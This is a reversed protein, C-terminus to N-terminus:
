FECLPLDTPMISIGTDTDPTSPNPEGVVIGPIPQDEGSQPTEGPLSGDHESSYGHLLFLCVLLTGAAVDRAENEALRIGSAGAARPVTWTMIQIWTRSVSSRAPDQKEQDM